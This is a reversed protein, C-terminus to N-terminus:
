QGARGLFAVAVPLVLLVLLRWFAWNTAEDSRMIRLAAFALAVCQTVHLHTRASTTLLFKLVKKISTLKEVPPM